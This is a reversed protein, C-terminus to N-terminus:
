RPGRRWSTRAFRKRTRAPMSKRSPARSRHSRLDPRCAHRDSPRTPRATAGRTGGSPARLRSGHTSMDSLNVFFDNTLTEPQKTFVGHKSQGANAGLVRLGGVPTMEPPAVWCNRGTRLAEEPLMFQRKGGIYNRFGDARPELPPTSTPRSRRRTRAGAPVKRTQGAVKAAKEPPPAAPVILDARRSRREAPTSSKQIAELKWLVTHSLRSTSRGTKQRSAFARATQAVRKDLRPHTSRRGPPRSSSPCPCARPLIKALRSTRSGSWRIIVAPVPDGSPTEKPVLPGLYRQIPGM